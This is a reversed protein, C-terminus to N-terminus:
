AAPFAAFVPVFFARAEAAPTRFVGIRSHDGGVVSPVTSSRYNSQALNESSVVTEATATVGLRGKLVLVRSVEGKLVDKRVM